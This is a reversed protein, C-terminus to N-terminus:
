QPTIGMAETMEDHAEIYDLQAQLLATQADFKQVVANEAQSQLAEGKELQQGSVRSAETRLDLLEKSVNILERTRQLKNYAIQVQLEVDDTVRALNERAQALQANSEELKARRRGGDFLEYTFEVGFSGFNRALFPVQDSYSYRAFASVDPIYDAKSLKVGASAKQVEERAAVVEPHSELAIKVCEEQKCSEMEESPVAELELRTTLPLGVVDDLQMTLNTLLLETTLLEQKAQLYQATSEIMEQDLASGYKVQQVRESKLAETAKIRAESASQHLQAILVSYYIQHVKLAIENEIQKTNARSADLDARAIDNEPKIKTFLQTLPQVLGTGSTVITRGGQNITAPQTPIPTGNVTGLSGTAIQIFQTDTLHVLTSQNSITPFYASKAVDKAHQKEEIKKESIRVMHNQKLAMQVAEHLTLRRVNQTAGTQARVMSSTGLFFLGVALLKTRANM